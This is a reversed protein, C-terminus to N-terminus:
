KRKGAKMGEEILPAIESCADPYDSYGFLLMKDRLKCLAEEFRIVDRKLVKCFIIRYPSNEKKMEGKFQMTVKNQIFLSDALYSSHDVYVYPVSFLSFDRMKWYNKLDLGGYRKESILKVSQLLITM